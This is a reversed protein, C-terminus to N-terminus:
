GKVAGMTLGRVLYRQVLMGVIFVPVMAMVAAASSGGWDVSVSGVFASIGTPLTRTARGSLVLAFLFENWSLILVLIGTATLGPSALPLAIRYFTQLTTCGDVMAAEELEPPIEQFFSRMMWVVFPLNFTTHAAIIGIYSNTWGLNRMIVYMPVVLAGAPVMRTFLIAVALAGRGRIPTRALSYAALSGVSLSVIMTSVGVILSNRMQLHLQHRAFVKLFHEATPEFVWTPPTSFMLLTPKVAQLGIIVIPLLTWLLFLSVVAYALFPGSWRLLPKRNM